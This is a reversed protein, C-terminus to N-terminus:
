RLPGPAAPPGCGPHGRSRANGRGADRVRAGNGCCWAGARPALAQETSPDDARPVHTRFPLPPTPRFPRRVQDAGPRIQSQFACFRSRDQLPEQLGRANRPLQHDADRLGPLRRGTIWRRITARPPLVSPASSSSSPDCDTQLTTSSAPVARSGSRAVHDQGVDRALVGAHHDGLELLEPDRSPAIVRSSISVCNESWASRATSCALPAGASATTHSSTSARVLSFTSSEAVNRANM